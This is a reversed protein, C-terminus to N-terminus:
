RKRCNRSVAETNAHGVEEQVRINHWGARKPFRDFWRKSAVFTRDKSTEGNESKLSVFLNKAKSPITAPNLSLPLRRMQNDTWMILLEQLQPM